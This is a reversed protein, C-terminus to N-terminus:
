TGSLLTGKKLFDLSIRDRPPITIAHLYFKKRHAEHRSIHPEKTFSDHTEAFLSEKVSILALWADL